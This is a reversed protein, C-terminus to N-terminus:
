KCGGELEALAQACQEASPAVGHWGAQNEMFSVGKGKVTKGVIVTPKGSVTKAEECAKVVSEIDNGDELTIVNWGFAKFKEDIPTPNMVDRVNGDIQLSNHDVFALLNDLKYHAAAMAAEWIQGEQCEGDGLITYIRHANGEYKNALAMGVAVSLGQGLSGTSMDVGPLKRMSPHGQLRSNIKRFTKLEEEEIFGREALVSYLLPSAHGKSLVFRDRNTSELNDKNVDMQTFYIATAYEVSSLSGGPHGSKAETVTKVINKRINNAHEKLVEFDYM